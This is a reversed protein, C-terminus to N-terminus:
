FRRLRNRLDPLPCWDPVLETNENLEGADDLEDFDIDVRDGFTKLTDWMCYLGPDPADYQMESLMCYFCNHVVQHIVKPMINLQHPGLSDFRPSM